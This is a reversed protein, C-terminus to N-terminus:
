RSAIRPFNVSRANRGLPLESIKRPRTWRLLDRTRPATVVQAEKGFCDLTRLDLHDFHAHSLLVLDRGAAPRSVAIGASDPAEARHYPRYASGL